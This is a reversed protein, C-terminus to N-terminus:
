RARLRRRRVALLALALGIGSWTPLSGSGGAAVACGAGDDSKADNTVPAGQMAGGGTVGSMMMAPPAGGMMVPPTGTNDPPPTGQGAMGMAPTSGGMGGAGMGATMSTSGASGGAGMSAGAAGGAGATSGAEGTGADPTGSSDDKPLIKLKACHYYICNPPGHNQMVMIVQLTCDDCPEDPLKVDQSLADASIGDMLVNDHPGKPVSALDYSCATANTFPPDVFNKPDKDLAIRYHGGHPITVTWSVHLMDGAKVETIDGNPQAGTDDFGGPGCPAGKQPSGLGDQDVYSKPEDLVFHASASSSALCGLLALTGAALTQRDLM